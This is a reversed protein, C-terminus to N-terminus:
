KYKDMAEVLAKSFLERFNLSSHELANKLSEYEPHIRTINEFESIKVDICQDDVSVTVNHRAMETRQIQYRRIGITTTYKFIIREAKLILDKTVIAKLIYAPRNKKMFCPVFVVDRAGIEFLKESVLSFEQGTSDDISSELIYFDGNERSIENSDIMMTRLFNAHGFDRKGLGIGINEIVFESPMTFEPELAALIAIGTPTIMEGINQTFRFPIKGEKAINVVAPVPIPLTGHQCIISGKGESLNSVVVKDYKLDDLLVAAGIIDVISDIAGVEHFHVEDVSVGHALSEAKAIIIFIKEALAKAKDSIDAKYIFKKIKDLHIHDHLHCNSHDKYSAEEYNVENHLLVEFDTGSISYSSKKSINYSFGSLGLSKIAKELKSKSAGLDLLSAVTMDGSIGCSGDFFLIRSM